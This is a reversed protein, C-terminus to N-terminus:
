PIDVGTFGGSTELAVEEAIEYEILEAVPKEYEKM